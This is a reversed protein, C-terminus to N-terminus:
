ADDSSEHHVSTKRDQRSTWRCFAPLQPISCLLSSSSEIPWPQYMPPKAALLYTYISIVPSTNTVSLSELPIFKGFTFACSFFTHALARAVVMSYLQCKPNLKADDGTHPTRLKGRQRPFLGPGRWFAHSGFHTWANLTMCTDIKGERSGYVCSKTMMLSANSHDRERLRLSVRRSQTRLHSPSYQSQLM